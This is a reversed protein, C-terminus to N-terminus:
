RVPVSYITWSGLHTDALREFDVTGRGGDRGDYGIGQSQGGARGVGRRGGQMDREEVWEAYGAGGGRGGM